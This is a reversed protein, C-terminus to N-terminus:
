RRHPNIRLHELGVHRPDLDAIRGRDGRIGIRTAGKAALDIEQPRLYVHRCAGLADPQDERIGAHLQRGAHKHVDPEPNRHAPLQGDWGRAHQLRPRMLHRKDVVPASIEFWSLNFKARAHSVLENDLFAQFGSLPDDGGCVEQDIGFALKM